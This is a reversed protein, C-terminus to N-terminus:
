GACRSRVSSHRHVDQGEDYSAGLAPWPSISAEQRSDTNKPMTLGCCKGVQRAAYETCVGHLLFIAQPLYSHWITPTPRHEDGPCTRM